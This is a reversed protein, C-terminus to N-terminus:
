AGDFETRKGLRRMAEDYEEFLTRGDPAKPLQIGLVQAALLGALAAARDSEDHRRKLANLRQKIGEVLVEQVRKPLGPVAFATAIGELHPGFQPDYDSEAKDAARQEREGASAAYDDLVRLIDRLEFPKRIFRIKLERSQRELRKTDDGTVLAIQMDPNNKRLYEGFVVGEMGPLHHDIFAVEFTVRPLLELAQEASGASMVIHNEGTLIKTLLARVPEDDDVVLVTLQGKDRPAM